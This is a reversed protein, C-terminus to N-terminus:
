FHIQIRVNKLSRERKEAKRGKSRWLLFMTDFIIGPKLLRVVLTVPVLGFGTILALRSALM